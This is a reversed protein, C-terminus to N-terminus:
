SSPHILYKGGVIVLTDSSSKGFYPFDGQRSEQGGVIRPQIDMLDRSKRSMSFITRGDVENQNGLNYHQRLSSAKGKQDKEGSSRAASQGWLLLSVAILITMM